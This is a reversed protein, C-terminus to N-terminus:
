PHFRVPTVGITSLVRDLADALVAHLDHIQTSSHVHFPEHCFHKHGMVYNIVEFPLRARNFLWARVFHRNVNPPFPWQALLAPYDALVRAFRSCGFAHIDKTEPDIFYFVPDNLQRLGDIDVRSNARLRKLLTPHAVEQLDRLALLAKPPLVALREETFQSDKDAILVLGSHTDVTQATLPPIVRPRLATAFETIVYVYLTFLNHYAMHELLTKCHSRRRLEAELARVFARVATTTPVCRSGHWTGRPAASASPETNLTERWHM